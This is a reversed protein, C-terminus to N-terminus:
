WSTDEIFANCTHMHPERLKLCALATSCSDVALFYGDRGLVDAIGSAFGGIGSFCCLHNSSRRHQSGVPFLPPLLVEQARDGTVICYDFEARGCYQGPLTVPKNAKKVNILAFRCGVIAHAIEGEQGCSILMLVCGSQECRVRVFHDHEFTVGSELTQVNLNGCEAEWLDIASVFECVERRLLAAMLDFFFFFQLGSVFDSLSGCFLSFGCCQKLAHLFLLYFVEQVYLDFNTQSGCGFKSLCLLFFCVHRYAFFVFDALM